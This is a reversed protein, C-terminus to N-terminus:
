KCKASASLDVLLGVHRWGTGTSREGTAGMGLPDGTGGRSNMPIDSMGGTVFTFFDRKGNPPRCYVDIHPVLPLVEHYVMKSPGFIEDYVREREEIYTVTSERMIDLSPKPPGSDGYKM